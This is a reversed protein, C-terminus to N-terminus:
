NVKGNELDASLEPVIPLVLGAVKDIARKQSELIAHTHVNLTAKLCSRWPDGTQDATVRRGISAFNSTHIGSAIGIM